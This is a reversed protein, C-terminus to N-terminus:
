SHNSSYPNRKRHQSIADRIRQSTLKEDKMADVLKEGIIKAIFSYVKVLQDLNLAEVKKHLEKKLDQKTLNKELMKEERKTLNTPILWNISILDVFNRLHRCAYKASGELAFAQIGKTEERIRKSNASM